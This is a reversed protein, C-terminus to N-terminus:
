LNLERFKSDITNYINKSVEEYNLNGEFTFLINKYLTLSNRFKQGHIIYYFNIKYFLEDYQIVAILENLGRNAFQNHPHFEFIQKNNVYFGSRYSPVFNLNNVFVDLIMKFEPSPLIHIPRTFKETLVKDYIVEFQLQYILSNSTLPINMPLYYTFPLDRSEYPLTTFGKHIETTSVVVEKKERSETFYNMILNVNISKVRHNMKNFKLFIKGYIPETQLYTDKNIKVDIRCGDYKFLEKLVIIVEKMQHENKKIIDSIYGDNLIM